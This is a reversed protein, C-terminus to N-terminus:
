KSSQILMKVMSVSTKKDCTITNASMDHPVEQSGIEGKEFPMHCGNCLNKFPRSIHTSYDTM